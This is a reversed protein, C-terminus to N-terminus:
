ANTKHGTYGTKLLELIDIPSIMSYFQNPIKALAVDDEFSPINTYLSSNNTYLPKAITPTMSALVNETSIDMECKTEIPKSITQAIVKNETPTAEISEFKKDFQAYVQELTKAKGSKDYFVNKNARAADPFLEAANTNPNKDLANLFKSAGSPGMFHAMYLETAGAAKGTSKELHSKNDAALEAAMLSCLEPNKRLELIEKKVANCSVKGNDNIQSALDSLGYKDGYKNVMSLWTKDIFQYLGTASSTSAKVDTKFSSEIQAQKLLYSFDVGTKASANQIASAIKEGAKDILQSLNGSIATNKGTFM